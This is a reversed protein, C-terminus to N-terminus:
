TFCAKVFKRFADARHSIRNKAWRDMEGFTQAHGDPQFVPDYGHGQTGRMPWVVRGPVVGEFVQDTGDPLALVLTCRFQATRPEPAQVEELELWLRAMAVNFNRGASTEAWDATYVGPAGGVADVTLGSDDALTPLGSALMGARAKIRANGVFSTETEEPVPLGLEAASVVSVGFPKLLAVIEELKGTNHTAVM